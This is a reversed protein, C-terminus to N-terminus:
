PFRPPGGPLLAADSLASALFRDVRPSLARYLTAILARARIGPWDQPLQAEPLAPDRLIARRYAHVLLTRLEFAARDSPVDDASVGDFSDIFTQYDTALSELAWSDRILASLSDPTRPDAVFVTCAAEAGIDKLIALAPGAPRAAGLLGDNLAAYGIWGLAKVIQAKHEADVDKPLLVLTWRDHSDPATSAYIRAQASDFTSRGAATLTYRSRRGVREAELLGDQVLRFVATRTMRENLGMPEVLGILDSLWCQGGRPLISDGYVSVILSKARPQELGLRDCWDSPTSM